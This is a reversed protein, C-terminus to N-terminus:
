ADIGLQLARKNMDLMATKKAPVCKEIAKWLTEEECFRTEAFLKGALIINALKKFGAEEAMATAPIACMRVGEIEPIRQVLTSDAVVIGGEAVSREFKDLSPQNMAVLVDPALVLPSGIPDDSLCVSCNATGGRMEPGYSPLWSVERDELLGAYAILKGAFLVGQGGFGALVMNVSRSMTCRRGGAPRPARHPLRRQSGFGGRGRERPGRGGRGQVRGLPYYPLMNENMWAFADQPTMGWNTPCTGVIEVLSYGRKDIQTQFAKKIAKKAKRVNKPCDVTVRELYAVGDLSSLLECVRIPFGATETNRGYPSTQTVQNPLSTPAMQGGTMGYIANNVFVVTINEGRTAAHVTEAMGISALDGDGQYAFVVGDPLARKVATAVAPARGHAAEIMDCGYFDYSTVTCGVPAIGVTSGEVDLEDLCEAVLRNVIGHSCGPCYNTVVPLLAHPREFVVKMEKDAM